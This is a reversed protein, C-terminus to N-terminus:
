TNLLYNEDYIFIESSLFAYSNLLDQGRFTTLNWSTGYELCFPFGILRERESIGGLHITTMGLFHYLNISIDGLVSHYFYHICNYFQSRVQM